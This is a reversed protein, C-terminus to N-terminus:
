DVADFYDEDVRYINLIRVTQVGVGYALMLRTLEIGDILVVRNHLLDTAMRNANASFRSTTILVGRDAGNTTLAGLFQQLIPSGVTKGDSYRKAQIYVKQLGLADQRIIGDIGGDGSRGVHQKQGHAGGYGMAWLLDVVAKEFFEPSAEQLRRRLETEVQANSEVVASEIREIPGGDDQLGTKVHQNPAADGMIEQDSSMAHREAIERQYKAWAPWELMDKESYSILNRSAVALGDATIVYRGRRPKSVLGAQAFSSMAWGARNAYRLQGSPLTEAMQEETLGLFQASEYVIEQSSRERGDELVALVAPRFHDISPIETQLM